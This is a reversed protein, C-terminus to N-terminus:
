LKIWKPIYLGTSDYPAKKTYWNCPMVTKKNQLWAAWWAFSSNSIIAGDCQTMLHFSQMEDNLCVPIDPLVKRASNYNDTFLLFTKGPFQEMAKEYYERTQVPHYHTVGEADYARFHIFVTNEMSVPNFKMKFQERILSECNKFLTYDQLYGVMSKSAGSVRPLPNVFYEEYKWEPFGYQCNFYKAMGITSAIQFLQNGFRGNSGLKDYTFM